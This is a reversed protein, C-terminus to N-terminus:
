SFFLGWVENILESLNISENQVINLNSIEILNGSTYGGHPVNIWNPTNTENLLHLGKSILKVRIYLNHNGNNQIEYITDDVIVALHTFCRGIGRPNQYLLVIEGVNINLPRQILHLDFICNENVYAIREVSSTVNKIYKM